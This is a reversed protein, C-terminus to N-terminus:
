LAAGAGAQCAAQVIFYVMLWLLAVPVLPVAIWAIVLPWPTRLGPRAASM